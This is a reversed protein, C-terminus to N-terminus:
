VGKIPFTLSKDCFIPHRKLASGLSGVTALSHGAFGVLITPQRQGARSHPSEYTTRTDKCSVQPCLWGRRRDLPTEPTYAWGNGKQRTPIELDPFSSSPGPRISRLPGLSYSSSSGFETILYIKLRNLRQSGPFVCRLLRYGRGTVKLM